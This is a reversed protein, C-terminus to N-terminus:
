HHSWGIEAATEQGVVVSRLGSPMEFATPSTARQVAMVEATSQPFRPRQEPDGYGQPFLPANTAPDYKDTAGLTHLLEHAIVINNSGAMNKAAFVHVVGMLGKQLGHSDPIVPLSSPDHYLVFLRIRPRTRGPVDQAHWAFWRLKLSWLATGFVSANTPLPPPLEKGEPYLEIHVPQDLSVGYRHAEGQIFSEISTFDEPALNAIYREAQPSGDGNLPFVGVWLTNKWSRTEIRDRLTIGAVVVLIVLWVSIRITKWM